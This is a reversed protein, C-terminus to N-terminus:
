GLARPSRAAFYLCESLEVRDEAALIKVGRAARGGTNGSTQCARLLHDCIDSHKSFCNLGFNM